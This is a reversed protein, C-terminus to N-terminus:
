QVYYVSGLLSFKVDPVRKTSRTQFYILQVGQLLGNSPRFIKSRCLTLLTTLIIYTHM